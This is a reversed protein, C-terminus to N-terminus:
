AGHSIVVSTRRTQQPVRPLEVAAGCWCRAGSEPQPVALEALVARVVRLRHEAPLTDPLTITRARYDWPQYSDTIPSLAITVCM